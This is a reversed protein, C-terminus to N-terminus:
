ERQWKKKGEDGGSRESWGRGEKRGAKEKQKKWERIKRRGRNKWSEWRRSRFM